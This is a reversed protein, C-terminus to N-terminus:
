VADLSAFEACSLGVVDPAGGETGPLLRPPAHLFQVVNPPHHFSQFSNLHLVPLSTLAVKSQSPFAHLYM